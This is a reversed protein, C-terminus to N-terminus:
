DEEIGTFQSCKGTELFEITDKLCGVPPEPTSFLSNIVKHQYEIIDLAYKLSFLAMMKELDTHSLEDDM